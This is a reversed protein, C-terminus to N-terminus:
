APSATLEVRDDAVATCTLHLRGAPTSQGPACSVDQEGVRLTARGDQVGRLAIATGFVEAQSGTGALTLSCSTETCSVLSM